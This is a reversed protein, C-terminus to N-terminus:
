FGSGQGEEDYLGQEREKDIQQKMADIENDKMRLIENQVYKQSFFKGVYDNVERLIGLRERLLEVQKAERFYTDQEFEYHINNHIDYWDEPSIIGKLLLQKELLADFLHSFRNRIRTIFRNFKLEDRTIETARGMTFSNDNELRTVPVNLAKYLKKQFYQIDELEGLNQGAPLTSIETGRGGERRPIWYDELMSMHRRDDRIEGTNVDYILKNKYKVMIDRLYQEAKMKPLNGVDIYFIRREPARSIRYIVVADELMRLQNLPKIAKHLFSLVQDNRGSKLGSTVYVVSDPAIRKGATKTSSVDAIGKENYIYFEM